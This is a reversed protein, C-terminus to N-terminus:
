DKLFEDRAKTFAEPQEINSLHAADLGVLKAGPIRKAILEAAEYPTAPDHKGGIVLTPVKIDGIAWRQDVDRIAACNGAYGEPKTTHLMEVIPDIDKPSNGSFEKTFWREIVSGTITKMGSARVTAIRQNWIEALGFKAATNCLVLQEIRSPANRALWMGIMGGMSLGCFRVKQLKLADMLAVADHGLMASTYPYSPADTKGHGRTDYRLVRFRKSLAPMQKDWMHLSTGLSNSLMLVPANEVGDIQYNVKIGNVDLTPM